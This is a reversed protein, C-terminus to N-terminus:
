SRATHSRGHWGCWFPRRSLLLAGWPVTLWLPWLGESHHGPTAFTIAWIAWVVANVSVFRSWSRRVRTARRADWRELLSRTGPAPVARADPRRPLDVLLHDLEGYTKSSYAAELREGFEEMTLRGEALCERLTSAAAERDADSARLSPDRMM